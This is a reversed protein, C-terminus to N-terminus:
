HKVSIIIKSFGDRSIKKCLINEFIFFFLDYPISGKMAYKLIQKKQPVEATAFLIPAVASPAKVIPETRNIVADNKTIMHSMILFAESLIDFCSKITKVNEPNIIYKRLVSSISMTELITSELILVTTRQITETYIMSISETQCLFICTPRMPINPIISQKMPTATVTIYSSKELVPELANPMTRSINVGIHQPM